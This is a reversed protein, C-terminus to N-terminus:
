ISAVTSQSDVEQDFRSARRELGFEAHLLQV